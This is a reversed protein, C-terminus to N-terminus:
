GAPLCAAPVRPRTRPCVCRRQRPCSPHSPRAQRLCPPLPHSTLVPCNSRFMRFSELLKQINHFSGEPWWGREGPSAAGKERAAAPPPRPPLPPAGKRCGSKGPLLGGERAARHTGPLESLSLTRSPRVPSRVHSLSLSVSGSRAARARDDTVSARRDPAASSAEGGGGGGRKESTGPRGPAGTWTM